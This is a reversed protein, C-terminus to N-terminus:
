CLLATLFDLLKIRLFWRSSYPVGYSSLYTTMLMDWQNVYWSDQGLIMTLDPMHFVRLMMKSLPHSKNNCSLLFMYLIQSLDFVVEHDKPRGILGDLKCRGWLHWKIRYTKENNTHMCSFLYSCTDFCVFRSWPLYDLSNKLRHKFCFSCYKIRQTFEPYWSRGTGGGGGSM